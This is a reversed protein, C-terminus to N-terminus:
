RSRLEHAAVYGIVVGAWIDYETDAYQPYADVILKRCAANREKRRKYKSEIQWYAPLGVKKQWDTPKIVERHVDALEIITEASGHQYGFSYVSKVGQGRMSHVKEILTLAPCFKNFTALLEARWAVGPEEFAIVHALRLERETVAWLSAAGKAGPDIGVAYGLM